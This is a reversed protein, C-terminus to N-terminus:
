QKAGRYIGVGHGRIFTSSGLLPMFIIVLDWRGLVDVHFIKSCGLHFSSTSSIGIFILLIQFLLIVRSTFIYKVLLGQRLLSMKHVLLMSM